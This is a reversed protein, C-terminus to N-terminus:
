PRDAVTVAEALRALAAAEGSGEETSFVHVALSTEGPTAPVHLTEFDLTLMGAVPHRLRKRGAACLVVGGSDAPLPPVPCTPVRGARGRGPGLATEGPRGERM